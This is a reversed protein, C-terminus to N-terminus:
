VRQSRHDLDVAVQHDRASVGCGPKKKTHAVAREQFLVEPPSHIPLLSPSSRTGWAAQANSQSRTVRPKAYSAFWVHVLGCFIWSRQEAGVGPKSAQGVARTGCLQQQCRRAALSAVVALLAAELAAPRGLGAHPALQGALVRIPQLELQLHLHAHLPHQHKRGSNDMAELATPM